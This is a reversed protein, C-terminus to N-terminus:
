NVVRKIAISVASFRIKGSKSSPASGMNNKSIIKLSSYEGMESIWTLSNIVRDIDSSMLTMATMENYNSSTQLTKHYILSAM